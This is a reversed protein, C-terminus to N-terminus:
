AFCDPLIFAAATQLVIAIALLLAAMFCVLAVFSRGEGLDRRERWVSWSLWAGVIAVVLVALGLLGTFLPGNSRCDSFSLNSGTQHELAWGTGALILGAWPLLLGWSKGRGSM